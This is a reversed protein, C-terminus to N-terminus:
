KFLNDLDESPSSSAKDMNEIVITIENPNKGEHEAIVGKVIAMDTPERKLKDAFFGTMKFCFKGNGDTYVSAGAFGVSLSRKM